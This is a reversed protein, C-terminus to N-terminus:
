AVAPAPARTGLARPWALVVLAALLLLDRFILVALPGASLNDIFVDFLRPYWVHTAVVAAAILGTSVLGRRGGVLPVLPLLWMVYEPSLVQSLAVTAVLTAAAYRALRDLTAFGRAFAIWLAVLVAARLVSLSVAVARTGSGHLEETKLGSENSEARLDLSDVPLGLANLRGLVDNTAVLGASGSSEVELGRGLQARLSSGVEGPAMVLFPIFVAAVVAATLALLGAAGRRGRRRWVFAVALPVLVAPYLKAAIAVGLAIAALYPRDFLLAAVAAATLAAPWLDWRLYLLGGLMLPALALLGLAISTAQRSRRLRGLSLGTFVITAALLAIMLGAFARMYRYAPPDIPQGFRAGDTSGLALPRLAPLIFPPLSGPPYTLEYDRYPVKGGLVSKGYDYYIRTDGGSGSYDAPWFRWIAAFSVFLVLIAVISLGARARGSLTAEGAIV